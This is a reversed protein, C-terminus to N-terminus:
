RRIFDSHAVLRYFPIDTTGGTAPGLKPEPYPGLWSLLRDITGTTVPAKTIELKIAKLAYGPGFTAALDDPEVQRVSTPDSLNAFTVLVPYDKPDLAVICRFAVIKPALGRQDGIPLGFMKHLAHFALETERPTLAFLYRGPKVELAVAEGTREFVNATASLGRQWEPIYTYKIATVSAGAKEGQPTDVVVTVKQHWEYTESCGSLALTLMAVALVPLLRFRAHPM